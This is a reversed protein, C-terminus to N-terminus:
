MSNQRVVIIEEQNSPFAIVGCNHPRHDPAIVLRQRTTPRECIVVLGLQM